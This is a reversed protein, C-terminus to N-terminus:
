SPVLLFRAVEGGPSPKVPLISVDKGDLPSLLRALPISTGDRRTFTFSGAREGIVGAHATGDVDLVVPKGAYSELIEGFPVDVPVAGFSAEPVVGVMVEGTEDVHIRGSVRVDADDLIDWKPVIRPAREGASVMRAVLRRALENRISAFAPDAVLNVREHPDVELDHLADEEYVPSWSHHNGNKGPARVAYKWRSTRIARGVQSESIQVFVDDPWDVATGAVLDQVPRGHWTAPVPLGACRLITPPLDLLSVMGDIRTGGMFGPGAIVLPVHISADHCSRKYEANRTRFHCGHDSTYIIVTDNEIGKERLKALIKGVNTDISNCCGLYDPYSERWDGATGELDGPVHYEKWREKSGPPGEFRFRDNQHHPELYSVFLFFPRAGDRSEIHDLVFGTQSDVRYGPFTVENMAADWMRGGDLGTSTHELVDAALWYGGYGGRRGAPVPSTTFSVAPELPIDATGGTSALHWKGIYAVDYGGAALRRALTDIDLPLAINNRFCGTATAHLGSQLCSRAPGCVPQPTYANTFLVGERAVGDLVPTVPLPQGYCGMTDARQQDSFIFIINPRPSM